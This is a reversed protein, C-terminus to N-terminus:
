AADFVVSIRRNMRSKKEIKAVRVPGIEATNAVHTGGCPQVDVEGIRLLRIRGAGRPPQVSLTKVLTPDADLEAETIWELATETGAEILGNLARTLGDKDVTPEPLDFDLRGKEHDLNGGTVPADVLACLLHLCTHMRMHKHRKEWDIRAVVREGVAPRADSNVAPVHLIADGDGKLTDAIPLEAGSALVLVGRDGPQGGGRAYFVTRDLVVGHDDVAVVTADTETLYADQEYRRETM